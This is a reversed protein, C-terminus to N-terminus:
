APIESNQGSELFIFFNGASPRGAAPAPARQVLLGARPRSPVGTTQHRPWEVLHPHAYTVAHAGCASFCWASVRPARAAGAGPGHRAHRGRRVAGTEERWALPAVRATVGVPTRPPVPVPVPVQAACVPMEGHRQARSWLRAAARRREEPLNSSGPERGPRRVVALCQCYNEPLIWRPRACPRTPICAHNVSRRFGSRADLSLNLYYLTCWREDSNLAGARRALLFCRRWYDDM